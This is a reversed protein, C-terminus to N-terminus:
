FSPCSGASASPGAGASPAPFRRPRTTPAPRGPRWSRRRSSSVTGSRPRSPGPRRLEGSRLLPAARRRRGRAGGPAGAGVRTRRGAQRLRPVSVSAAQDSGRPPRSDDARRLERRRRRADRAFVTAPVAARAADRRLTAPAAPRPEGAGLPVGGPRADRRRRSRSRAVQQKGSNTDVQQCTAKGCRHSRSLALLACALPRPVLADRAPGGSRRSDGSCCNVFHRSRM